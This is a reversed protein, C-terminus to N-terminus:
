VFTSCSCGISARGVVTHSLAESSTAQLTTTYSVTPRRAEWMGYDLNSTVTSSRLTSNYAAGGGASKNGSVACNILFAQYVGSGVVRAANSLILCNVLSTNTSFCWAGGGSQLSATDGSLLTAGGQLTFGVLTAGNTLWACRVATTSNTAGAGQITTVSPGSVSQVTLAKDLAVRNTLTGAMVKGGTAYIGNIM